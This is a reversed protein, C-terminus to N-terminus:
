GLFLIWIYFHEVNTPIIKLTNLIEICNRLRMKLIMHIFIKFGKIFKIMEKQVEHLDNM